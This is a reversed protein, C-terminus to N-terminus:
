VLQNKRTLELALGDLGPFLASEVLGASSLFARAQNHAAVPLRVQAVVKPCLLELPNRKEGHITFWGRQARMRANSQLPYIAIPNTLRVGGAELLDGYDYDDFSEVIYRPEILDRLNWSAKSENLAYPNLLWVAADQSELEEARQLAFYLAVGFLETWDLIRTPVLHHRMHALYDWDLRCLQHLEAARARFEWFLSAEISNLEDDTLKKAKAIRLLTPLLPWEISGHGRFFCEENGKFKLKSKADEIDKLFRPWTSPEYRLYNTM